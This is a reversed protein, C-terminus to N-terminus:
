KRQTNGNRIWHLLHLCSNVNASSNGPCVQFTLNEIQQHM